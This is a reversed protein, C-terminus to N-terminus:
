SIARLLSRMSECLPSFYRTNLPFAGVGEFNQTLESPRYLKSGDQNYAQFENGPYLVFVAQAGLADRYTHMKYLDGRKYTLREEEDREEEADLERSIFEGPRDYKYKADFVFRRGDPLEVTYDPRLTVSYSGGPGHGFSRNYYVTAQGVVGGSGGKIDVKFVGGEEKIFQRADVPTDLAVAVADLLQFFCWYEYL